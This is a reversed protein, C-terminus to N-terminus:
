ELLYITKTIYHEKIEEMRKINNEKNKEIYFMNNINMQRVENNYYNLQTNEKIHINNTKLNTYEKNNDDLTLDNIKM